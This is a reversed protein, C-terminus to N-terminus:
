SALLKFTETEQPPTAYISAAKALLMGCAPLFAFSSRDAKPEHRLSM